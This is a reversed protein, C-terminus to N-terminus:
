TQNTNHNINSTTPLTLIHAVPGQNLFDSVTPKLVSVGSNSTIGKFIRIAKEMHLKFEDSNLREQQMDKIKKGYLIQTDLNELLTKKEVLIETAALLEQNEIDNHAIKQKTRNILITVASRQEGRFARLNEM